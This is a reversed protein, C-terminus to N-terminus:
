DGEGFHCTLSFGDALVAPSCFFFAGLPTFSHIKITEVRSANSIWLADIFCHRKYRTGFEILERTFLYEQKYENNIEQGESSKWFDTRVTQLAPYRVKLFLILSGEHNDTVQFVKCWVAAILRQRFFQFYSISVGLMNFPKVVFHFTSNWPWRDLKAEVEKL